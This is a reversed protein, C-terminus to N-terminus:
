NQASNKEEWYALKGDIRDLWEELGELQTNEDDEPDQDLLFIRKDSEMLNALAAQSRRLNMFGYGCMPRYVLGPHILLKELSAPFKLDFQDPSYTSSQLVDKLTSIFSSAYANRRDLRLHTLYPACTPLAFIAKDDGYGFIRLKRLNVLTPMKGTKTDDFDNFHGYIVLESLLPFEIPLFLTERNMELYLYLYVLSPAAATLVDM